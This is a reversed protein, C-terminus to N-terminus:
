DNRTPVFLSSYKQLSVKAVGLDQGIKVLVSPKEGPANTQTGTLVRSHFMLPSPPVLPSYPFAYPLLPASHTVPLELVFKIKRHFIKTIKYQTLIIFM